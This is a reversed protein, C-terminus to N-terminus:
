MSYSLSVVGSVFDRSDRGSITFWVGAIVGLDENFNYEIAPAMSFSDSSPTSISVDGGTGASGTFRNKSESSYSFDMAAAWNQNLTYEAGLDATFTKGPKVRIETNAAGGYANVGHVNVHSPVNYGLGLRGRLFHDNALHWMKQVTMTLSTQYSGAGAADTGNRVPDLRQYKGTPLVEALTFKVDPVWSGAVANMAQFGVKLKIDSLGHDSEGNKSNFVYPIGLGVDMWPTLGYSFDISPNFTDSEITSIKHRHSDYIGFGDSYTLTPSISIGGPATTHGSPALLSGTLWPGPASPASAVAQPNAFAALSLSSALLFVIRVLAKM